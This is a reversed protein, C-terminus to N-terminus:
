NECVVFQKYIKWCEFRRINQTLSICIRFWCKFLVRLVYFSVLIHQLALLVACPFLDGYLKTFNPLHFYFYFWSSVEREKCFQM